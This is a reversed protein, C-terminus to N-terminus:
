EFMSEGTIKSIMELTQREVKAELSPNDFTTDSFKRAVRQSKAPATSAEEKKIGLAQMMQAELAALADEDDFKPDSKKRIM